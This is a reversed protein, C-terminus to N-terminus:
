REGGDEGVVLEGIPVVRVKDVVLAGAHGGEQTRPLGSQQIKRAVETPDM